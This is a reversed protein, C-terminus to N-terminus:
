IAKSSPKRKTISIVFLPMSIQLNLAFNWTWDRGFGRGSHPPGSLQYRSPPFNFASQFLASGRSVLVLSFSERYNILGVFVSHFVDACKECFLRPLKRREFNSELSVGRRTMSRKSAKGINKLPAFTIEEWRMWRSERYMSRDAM